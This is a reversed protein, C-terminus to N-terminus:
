RCRYWVLIADCPPNLIPRFKGTLLAEDMLVNMGDFLRLDAPVIDGVPLQVIDGVVLSEAMASTVRGDRITKCTSPSLRRLSPITTEARYDEVFGMVINLVIVAPIVGGEVYDDIGFCLAM